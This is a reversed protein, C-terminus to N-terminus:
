SQNASHFALVEDEEDCSRRERQRVLLSRADIETSGVEVISNHKPSGYVAAFFEGRM